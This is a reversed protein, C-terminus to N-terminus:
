EKEKPEAQRLLAMQHEWEDDVVAQLEKLSPLAARADEPLSEYQAVAIPAASASLARAVLNDRKGTCLLIGVTPAHIEPNRFLEDVIAVYTGLQGTYAPDFPKVKLEIVIYRLQETHFMLLDVYMDLGDVSLRAQRGVLTMGRGFELLTHQLRDIMAQEVKAETAPDTLAALDFIYPDKTIQQVLDSDAPPLRDIFNSPAAGLRQRLNSKIQFDLIHRSWGELSAREAYWERDDNSDLRNLLVQIHGWPLQDVAHLGISEAIPWAAAFMRMYKLNTPSWGRQGPFEDRLDASLREIVKSGWGLATQRELIDKGISWYLHTMEVNAARLARFQTERVRAKLNVLWDAYGDPAAEISGVAPRALSGDSVAVNTSM